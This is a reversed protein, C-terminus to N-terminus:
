LLCYIFLRNQSGGEKSLNELEIYSNSANQSDLHALSIEGEGFEACFSDTKVFSTLEMMEEPSLPANQDIRAAFGENNAAAEILREMRAVRQRLRAQMNPFCAFVVTFVLFALVLLLFLVTNTLVVLYFFYQLGCLFAATCVIRNEGPLLNLFFILFSFSHVTYFLLLERPFRSRLLYFLLCFKDFGLAAVIIFFTLTRADTLFTQLKPDSQPLNHIESPQLVHPTNTIVEPSKTMMAKSIKYFDSLSMFLVNKTNLKLSTEDSSNQQGPKSHSGATGLDQSSTTDLGTEAQPSDRAFLKLRRLDESEGFGEDVFSKLSNKKDDQSGTAPGKLIDGLTQKLSGEQDQKSALLSEGASLESSVSASEPSKSSQTQDGVIIVQSTQAATYESVQSSKSLFMTSHVALYFLLGLSLLNGLKGGYILSRICWLLSNM